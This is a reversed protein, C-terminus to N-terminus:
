AAHVIFDTSALSTVAVNRLTISDNGELTILIDSGVLKVNNEIFNDINDDNIFSLDIQDGATFDIITDHGSNALFVFQDQYGTGFM